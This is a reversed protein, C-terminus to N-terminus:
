GQGYRWKRRFHTSRSTVHLVIWGEAVLQNLRRRDFHFQDPSDHWTGDYEVAVRYEPWALDPHVVLGSRLTIPFQTVPRPLGARIFRVRLRSEAPSQAGADVLDFVRGARLVGRRGAQEAVRELLETRSTLRLRLLGDVATVAEVLDLWQALDWATRVPTTSRLGHRVTVEVLGLPTHHVQVGRPASVRCGPPAIVHVPDGYGAAFEVGYLWAASPGAFTVGAPLRLAAARCRLGHDCDLRSDAYVGHLPSIWASSRLQYPTVIGHDVAQAGLFVQWQLARPRAPSRAM